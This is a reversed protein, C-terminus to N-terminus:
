RRRSVLRLGEGTGGVGGTPGPGEWGHPVVHEREAAYREPAAALEATDVEAQAEPVGDAAELRDVARREETGVLWYITPM